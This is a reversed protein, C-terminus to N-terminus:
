EKKIICMINKGFKYRFLFDFFISAPTFIKDWIFIKFKSPYIEEKFFFQNIFYLFYGFCDLYYVDVFKANNLKTNNFFDIEYRRYHGVAEDFKSYLKNHAPVLLVLYGNSNIKELACNIEETDEKIHELVNLYIITNFKKNINKVIENSISINKNNSYKKKLENLNNEDTETITINTFNKEYNSTFSGIGAGVELLENKLYKKILLFIYRRWINAKDFNELELGPYKM